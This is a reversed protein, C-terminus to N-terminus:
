DKIMLPMIEKRMEHIDMVMKIEANTLSGIQIEPEILQLLEFIANDCITLQCALEKCREKYKM